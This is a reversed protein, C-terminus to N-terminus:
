NQLVIQEYDIPLSYRGRLIKIYEKGEADLQAEGVVILRAAEVSGPWHAYELLQGIAQRICSRPSGDTKIEYFWYEKGQRVVVDISTGIGSNVERCVNIEGYAKTLRVFLAQQLENHRLAINLQREALSATTSFIKPKSGSRFSFVSKRLATIPQSKGNSEVYKYLPLLRDFDDLILEYNISDVQQRKGLFIFTGEAALEPPIITPMYESSRDDNFFYWMRMDTFRELYMQIFDNFFKVKPLLVQIDPLTQSTEFSFALGHRLCQNKGTQEFGINYQLEKRGGHHFAWKEFTTLNSFIDRSSVTRLGHLEKRIEQLEGIPHLKARENIEKVILSLKAPV